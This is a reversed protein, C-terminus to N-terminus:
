TPSASIFTTTSRVPPTATSASDKAWGTNLSDRFRRMERSPSPARPTAARPVKSTIVDRSTLTLPTMPGQAGSSLFLGATESTSIPIPPVAAHRIHPNSAAVVMHTNRSTAAFSALSALGDCCCCCCNKRCNQVDRCSGDPSTRSRTMVSVRAQVSPLLRCCMVAPKSWSAAATTSARRAVKLISNSSSNSGMRQSSRLSMLRALRKPSYRLSSGCEKWSDGEMDMKGCNWNLKRREWNMWTNLLEGSSVACQRSSSCRSLTTFLRIMIWGMSSDYEKLPGGSGTSSSTCDMAASRMRSSSEKKVTTMKWPRVTACHRLASYWFCASCAAKACSSCPGCCSASPIMASRKGM